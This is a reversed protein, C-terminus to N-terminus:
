DDIEQVIQVKEMEKVLSKVDAFDDREYNHYLDVVKDASTLMKEVEKQVEIELDKQTYKLINSEHSVIKIKRELELWQSQLEDRWHKYAKTEKFNGIDSKISM